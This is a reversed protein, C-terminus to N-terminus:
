TGWVRGSPMMQRLEAPGTRGQGTRGAWCKPGAQASAFLGAVAARPADGQVQSEGVAICWDCWLEGRWYMIGVEGIWGPSSIPSPSELVPGFRFWHACGESERRGGRYLLCATSEKSRATELATSQLVLFFFFDFEGDEFRDGLKGERKRCTKACCLARASM